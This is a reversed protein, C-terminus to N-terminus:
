LRLYLLVVNIDQAPGVDHAMILLGGVELNVEGTDSVTRGGLYTRKLVLRNGSFEYAVALTDPGVETTGFASERRYSQIDLVRGRSRFDLLGSTISTTSNGPGM